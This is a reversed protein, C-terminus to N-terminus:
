PVVLRYFQNGTPSSAVHQYQNSVVNFPGPVTTWNTSSLSSSQQLSYGGIATPWTIVVSGNSEAASLVPIPTFSFNAITQIATTGGTAATFGIFASDGGVIASLPGVVYNTTYTDSPTNTDTLTVTLNNGDYLIDYRISDGSIVSVNGTPGYLYGGPLVGLSGQGDSAFAIGPANDGNNYLETALAVSNTLQYYGLCSGSAGNQLASAGAASNQLCITFGDATANATGDSGVDTYIFSAKFAGIYMPYDFFFSTVENYNTDTLEIVNNTIFTGQAPSVGNNTMTWGTGNTNFTPEFASVVSLATSNTSGYANSIVCTYSGVNTTQLNTLTLSANTANAIAQSTNFYWQFGLPGPGSAVVSANLTGGLVVVEIPAPQRVIGPKLAALSGLVQVEAIQLGNSATDNDNVNTFALQYTTYANTNAFDIERLVQNTINLAGGAANRQAPLALLGGAIPTFNTGGDNSGELLYDAPDDEPHSSATFFRIRTVVSAGVSPTFSFGVPGSFPATSGNAGFNVYQFLTNDQVNAVSMNFPPPVSNFPSGVTNNFDSLTDGPALVNGVISIADDAQLPMTATNTLMTLPAAPSTNTATATSIVCQYLGVNTLSVNAITLNTTTAGAINGGDTLKNTVGGIISRWQFSPSTAFAPSFLFNATSGAVVNQAATSGVATPPPKFILQFGNVNIGPLEGHGVGAAPNFSATITINSRVDPTVNEFIVFNEGEIFTPPPSGNRSNLTAAIGNHASGSNVAFATGSNNDPSAGYLYLGYTGPPVNQLTFVENSVLGNTVVFAATSLLFAPAGNPILSQNPESTVDGTYGAVSL